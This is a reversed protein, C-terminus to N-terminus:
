KKFANYLGETDSNSPFKDASVNSIVIINKDATVSAGGWFCSPSNGAPFGNDSDLNMYFVRSGTVSFTASYPGVPCGSNPDGIFNLTVSATSGDAVQVQIWSNYGLFGGGGAFRRFILPLLWGTSAQDTPVGRAATYAAENEGSFAVTQKGRILVAAVSAASTVHAYGVFGVPINSHSYVSDFAANSVGPLTVSVNVPAGTGDVGIYAINVDAATGSTNLVGTVTYFGSPSKIALPVIVDTGVDDTAAASDNVAFGEYSGLLRNGDSRYIDVNAAINNSGPNLVEVQMAMQNNQTSAPFQTVNAGSRGFTIQGSVPVAYGATCGTQGTPSDVVTQAATAAGGVNPTLFYTVKICAIGTGTNVIAVRSNWQATILENFAIPIALKQAGVDGASALSYSKSGDSDLIDRATLANVKQDSSVTGSGRFGPILGSNSAQAFTRTGGPPVGTFVKSAEPILVGAPTYIDLAITADANGANQVLISTNEKGTPFQVAAAFPGAHTSAAPIALVAASIAVALGAAL